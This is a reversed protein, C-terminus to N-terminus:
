NSPCDRVRYVLCEAASLHRLVRNQRAFASLAESGLDVRWLIALRDQSASVMLQDNDFLDIEQIWNTHGQFRHLEEGSAVSWMRITRDSSASFLTQGDQSIALGFTNDTHGVFQRVQAGSAVDWQRVSDDWSSSFLSRGDSSFIVENVQATHGTYTRITEGSAVDWLRLTKDSSASAFQRGDPSFDIGNVADTHGEYIRIVKGSEVDWLRITKDRSASLFQKGDASWRVMYVQDTHGEYINLVKRGRRVDWLRITGDWSATLLHQGDPSWRVSDITNTHGTLLAVGAGTVRDWVRVVTEIARNDEPLRLPGSAAAILTGDPSAEVAWLWEEFGEYQRIQDGSVLDWFWVAIESSRENSPLIDNNGYNGQGIILSRSDLSIDIALPRDSFGSFTQIATGREIDWVRVRRDWSATVIRKGDASYAIDTINDSAAFLRRKEEGSAVDYFRVTGSNTSDWVGIAVVNESPSLQLARIFGSNPAITTLLAGSEVSWIRM